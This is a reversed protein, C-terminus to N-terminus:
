AEVSRMAAVLRQMGKPDYRVSDVVHALHAIITPTAAIEPYRDLYLRVLSGTSEDSQQARACLWELDDWVGEVTM